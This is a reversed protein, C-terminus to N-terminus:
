IEWNTPIGNEYEIIREKVDPIGFHHEELVKKAFEIDLKDETKAVWPIQVIYDVYKALIEFESSYSGLKAMRNVRQLMQNAKAKLDEPLGQCSDIKDQIIRLEDFILESKNANQNVTTSSSDM